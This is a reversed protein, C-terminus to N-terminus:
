RRATRWGDRALCREGYVGRLGRDTRVLVECRRPLKSAFHYHRDLCHSLYGERDGRPTDVTVRCLAPLPNRKYGRGAKPGHRGVITGEIIPRGHRDREVNRILPGRRSIEARGVEAQRTRRRERENHERRNEARNNAIHATIGLLAAGALIKALTEEDPGAAAPATVGSLALSVAATMATLTTRM